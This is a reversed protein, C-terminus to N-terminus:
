SGEVDCDRVGPLLLPNNEDRDRARNRINQAQGANLHLKPRPHRFQSHKDRRLNQPLNPLPLTGPITLNSLINNLTLSPRVKIAPDGTYSYTCAGCLCEGTTAM